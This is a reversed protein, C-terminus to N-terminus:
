LNMKILENVVNEYFREWEGVTLELEDFGHYKEQQNTIRNIIHPPFVRNNIDVMLNKLIIYAEQKLVIDGWTDPYVFGKRCKSVRDDGLMEHLANVRVVLPTGFYEKGMDLSPSFYDNHKIWVDNGVIFIQCKCKLFPVSAVQKVGKLEKPKDLKNETYPKFSHLAFEVRSRPKDFVSTFM